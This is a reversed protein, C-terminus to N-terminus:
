GYIEKRLYKFVHPSFDIFQYTNKHESSRIQIRQICQNIIYDRDKDSGIKIDIAKYPAFRLPSISNVYDLLQSQKFASTVADSIGVCISRILEMRLAQSITQKQNNILKNSEQLTAMEIYDQNAQRKSKMRRTRFKQFVWSSADVGPTGVIVIIFPVLQTDVLPILFLIWWILGLSVYLSVFFIHENVIQRIRVSFVNPLGNKLRKAIFILSAIGSLLAVISPVAVMFVPLADWSFEFSSKDFFCIANSASSNIAYFIIVILLGSCWSFSHVQKAIYAQSRLPYLLSVFLDYCMGIFYFQSTTMFLVVLISWKACANTKISLVVVSLVFGLNAFTRGLLLGAPHIRFQKHKYFTYIIFLSMPVSVIGATIYPLTYM